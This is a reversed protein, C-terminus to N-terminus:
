YPKFAAVLRVTATRRSTLGTDELSIGFQVFGGFDIRSGGGDVSSSSGVLGISAGGAGSDIAAIAGPAFFEGDGSHGWNVKLRANSDVETAVLYMEFYNASLAASIPASKWEKPQGDDRSELLIDDAIVVTTAGQIPRGPRPAAARSAPPPLPRVTARPTQPAAPLRSPGSPGRGGGCKSGNCGM